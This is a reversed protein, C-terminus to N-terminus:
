LISGGWIFHDFGPTPERGILWNEVFEYKTSIRKLKVDDSQVPHVKAELATSHSLIFDIEYDNGKGLYNMEGLFKLQNFVTNEFLAGESPQSLISAIGNDFFYLKKGLVTSRDSNSFAPLRYIMYTKELFELYAALTPRTVGIVQSLKSQDLKNGIRAALVKLLQQMEGIKRFDALTQVDLNFYSTLIDQLIEKKVQPKTEMVVNPLGGFQIYNDYESKLRQYEGENFRMEAFSTRHHYPINHFDLIEAFNLPFMEFVIKRGAMSESFLNKLYYSSSGTLLFKIQYTDYLYKIVSPINPVYQIEDLAVYIQQTKDLGRNQLYDMILDYNKEEFVARQDMRELDIYIKNPSSIQDLLWHLTTTKGVRRMGTIVIIRSDTLAEKLQRYITREVIRM